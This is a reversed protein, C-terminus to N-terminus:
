KSKVDKIKTKINNLAKLTKEKNIAKRGNISRKKTSIGIAPIDKDVPIPSRLTVQNTKITYGSDPSAIYMENGILIANGKCNHVFQLQFKGTPTFAFEYPKPIEGDETNTPIDRESLTVVNQVLGNQYVINIQYTDGLDEALVRGMDVSLRHSINYQKLEIFFNSTLPWTGFPVDEDNCISYFYNLDDGLHKWSIHTTDQTWKTLLALQSFDTYKYSITYPTIHKITIDKIGTYVMMGPANQNPLEGFDFEVGNITTSLLLSSFNLINKFPSDSNVNTVIAGKNPTPKPLYYPVILEPVENVGISNFGIYLHTQSQKINSDTMALRILEPLQNKLVTLNSGGNMTEVGLKSVTTYSLIGIIECNKNVIASGSNGAFASTDIFIAPPIHSGGAFYNPDRVVGKAISYPDLGLPNGCIYCDDGYTPLRNALPLAIDTGSLDINTRIIAIDALGAYYINNIDIEVFNGTLPNTVYIDKLSQDIGGTTMNMLCHAATMYIGYKLDDNSLTVFNGSCTTNNTTLTSCSKLLSSITHPLNKLTLNDVNSQNKWPLDNYNNFLSM